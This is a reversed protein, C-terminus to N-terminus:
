PANRRRGGKPESAPDPKSQQAQAAQQERLRTLTSAEAKEFEEREVEAAAEKGAREVEARLANPPDKRGTPRAALWAEVEDVPWARTNKGLLIGVPFGEDDILRGLTPWNGVIGAAVLDNFRIFLTFAAAM